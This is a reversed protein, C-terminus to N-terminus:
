DHPQDEFTFAWAPVPVLDQGLSISLPWAPWLAGYYAAGYVNVAPISRYMSFGFTIAAAAYLSAVGKWFEKSM